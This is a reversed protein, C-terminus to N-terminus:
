YGKFLGLLALTECCTNNMNMDHSHCGQAGVSLKEPTGAQHMQYAELGAEMGTKREGGTKSHRESGAMDVISFNTKYYSGNRVQHLTLIFACHSRSSADNMNTKATTRNQYMRNVWEQLQSTSKLETSTVGFAQAERDLTVPSSRSAQNNLDTCGMCYFEVASALLISQTGSDRWEAMAQLTHHVLRPFLGWGPVPTASSLSDVEGLM